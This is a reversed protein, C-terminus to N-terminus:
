RVMIPLYINMASGPPPQAQIGAGVWFGSAGILDGTEVSGAVPQGLASALSISGSSIQSGGSANLSRPQSPGSGALALSVALLLMVLGALLAIRKRKTRINRM